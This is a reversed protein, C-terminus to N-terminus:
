IRFPHPKKKHQTKLKFSYSNYDVHNSPFHLFLIRTKPIGLKKTHKGTNNETIIDYSSPFRLSMFIKVKTKWTFKFPLQFFHSKSPFDQYYNWPLHVHEWWISKFLDLDTHRTLQPGSHSEKLYKSYNETQSTNRTLFFLRWKGLPKNVLMKPCWTDKLSM